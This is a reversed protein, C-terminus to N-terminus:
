RRPEALIDSITFGHSSRAATAKTAITTSSAPSHEPSLPAAYTNLASSLLPPPPPPLPPQSTRPTHVPPAFPTYIVTATTSPPLFWRSPPPPAPTAFAHSVHAHAHPSPFAVPQMVVDTVAAPAPLDSAAPGHTPPPPPLHNAAADPTASPLLWPPPRSAAIQSTYLLRAKRAAICVPCCDRRKRHPCISGGGRGADHCALCHTRRKNHECLRRRSAESLQRQPPQMLSPQQPSRPITVADAPTTTFATSSADTKTISAGSPCTEDSEGVTYDSSTAPRDGQGEEKSCTTQADASDDGADRLRRKPAPEDSAIPM